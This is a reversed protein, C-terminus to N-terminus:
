NAFPNGGAKREVQSYGWAALFDEPVPCCRARREGASADLLFYGAGPQTDPEAQADSAVVILPVNSAVCDFHRRLREEFIVNFFAISREHSYSLTWLEVDSYQRQRFPGFGARGVRGWFAHAFFGATGRFKSAAAPTCARADTMEKLQSKAKAVLKVTPEFAVIGNSVADTFDHEVGLFTGKNSMFARKAEAFPTGLQEFAKVVLAQGAGKAQAADTLNGEDVYMAWLLALVRRGLCELFKSRRGFQIVASSLGFVMAFIQQYHVQQTSPDRAAVINIDLDEPRCPISRFADPLDEGGTELEIGEAKLDVGARNAEEHVLRVHLGPQFASCLRSKETYATAANQGGRRGNDIRRKKGCSQAVCFAPIPSWSGRGYVNDFHERTMLDGGFGKGHEKKCSEWIFDIEEHPKDNTISSILDVSAALLDSKPVPPDLTQEEFIHTRELTGVDQFGDFFRGPLRWDPWGMILVLVAILGVNMRRAIQAVSPPQRRQLHRSLPECRASLEAFARLTAQRHPRLSKRWRILEAAAFRLDYDVSTAEAWPSAGATALGQAVSLHEERSFGLGVVPEVAEKSNVAGRQVGFAASRWGESFNAGACGARDALSIGREDLWNAYTTFPEINLIDELCPMKFNATADAPFLKRIASDMAGQSWRVSPAMLATAQPVVAAAATAVATASTRSTPSWGQRRSSVARLTLTIRARKTAAAILASEM